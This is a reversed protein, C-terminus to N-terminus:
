GANVCLSTPGMNENSGGALVAFVGFLLVRFWGAADHRIQCIFALLFGFHLVNTWLYHASGVVWFSTQGLAPNAIWYLVFVLLFVDARPKLRGDALASPFCAIIWSLAILALANIMAIVYHNGIALVVSSSTDAFFRGGWGMYHGRIADWSFGKLYFSFDDSIMPTLYQIRFVLLILVVATACFFLRSHRTGALNM